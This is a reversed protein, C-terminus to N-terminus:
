NTLASPDVVAGLHRLEFYVGGMPQNAETGSNAIIEGLSVKQNKSVNPIIGSYISLYENNHNIIIVQGFGPLTGVYKVVGAAIAFVPYGDVKYLVGKTKAGNFEVGFQRMPKINMPKALQQSFFKNNQDLRYSENTKAPLNNANLKILLQNLAARQQLLQKFKQQKTEIKNQVLQIQQLNIAKKSEFQKQQEATVTLRANLNNVEIKLRQNIDILQNLKSHLIQYKNQEITLLRNLYVQKRKINASDDATAISKSQNQLAVMQQYIIIATSEINKKTINLTSELTPIVDNIQQLQEIDIERQMKIDNLLKNSQNIALNSDAIANDLNHKKDNLNNLDVNLQQVKNMLNNMSQNVDTKSVALVNTCFAVLVLVLKYRISCFRM